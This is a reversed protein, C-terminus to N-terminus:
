LGGRPDKGHLGGPWAAPPLGSCGNRGRWRRSGVRDREIPRPGREPHEVTDPEPLCWLRFAEFGGDDEFTPSRHELDEGRADPVREVQWLEGLEPTGYTQSRTPGPRP